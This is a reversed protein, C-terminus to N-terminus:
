KEVAGFVKAAVVLGFAKEVETRQKFEVLAFRSMWDPRLKLPAIRQKTTKM